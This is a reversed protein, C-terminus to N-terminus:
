EGPGRTGIGGGLRSLEVGKGALRPATYKLQALEIQLRGESTVAHKAFIDLILMSRDLVDVEAEIGEEIEKLQSPSLECDFM